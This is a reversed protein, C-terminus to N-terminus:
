ISSLSKKTRVSFSLVIEATRVLCSSDNQDNNYHVSINNWGHKIQELLFSCTSVKGDGNSNSSTNDNIWSYESFLRTLFVYSMLDLM